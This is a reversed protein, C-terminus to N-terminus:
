EGNFYDTLSRVEIRTPTRKTRREKEKLGLLRSDANNLKNRVYKAFGEDNLLQKLVNVNSNSIGLKRALYPKKSYSKRQPM